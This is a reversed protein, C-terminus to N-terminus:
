GLEGAQMVGVLGDDRRLGPGLEENTRSMVAFTSSGPRRRSSSIDLTANGRIM